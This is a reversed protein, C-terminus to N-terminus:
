KIIKKLKNINMSHNIPIKKKFIKKASASKIKPNYKKAFKYVSQIPGGINIIGTKNLLLAFIDSQRTGIRQFTRPAYM